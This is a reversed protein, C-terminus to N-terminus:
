METLENMFSNIKYRRITPQRRALRPSLGCSGGGKSERRVLQRAPPSPGGGGPGGAAGGGPGGAAGGGPGGAAGGGPGGAEFGGPGGAVLTEMLLKTGNIKPLILSPTKQICKIRLPKCTHNILTVRVPRISCYKVFSRETKLRM